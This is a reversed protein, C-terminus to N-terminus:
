VEREERIRKKRYQENYFDGLGARQKRVIEKLKQNTQFEFENRKM